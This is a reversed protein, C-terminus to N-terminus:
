VSVSVWYALNWYWIEMLFPAHWLLRSVATHRFRTTDPVRVQRGLCPLTERHPPSGGVREYKWNWFRFFGLLDRANFLSAATFGLAIVTFAPPRKEDAM